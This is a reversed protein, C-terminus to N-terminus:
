VFEAPEGREHEALARDRLERVADTLEDTRWSRVISRVERECKRFAEANALNQGRQQQEAIWQNALACPRLWAVFLEQLAQDAHPNHPAGSYVSARITEDARILWAFADIGLQLFADCDLSGIADRRDQVIESEDAFTNVHRRAARLALSM